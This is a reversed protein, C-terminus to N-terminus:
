VELVCRIKIEDARVRVGRWSLLYNPEFGCCVIEAGLICSSNGVKGWKRCREGLGNGMSTISWRWCPVLKVREGEQGLPQCVTEKIETVVVFRGM